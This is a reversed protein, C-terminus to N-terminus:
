FPLTKKKKKKKGLELNQLLVLALKEKESYEKLM